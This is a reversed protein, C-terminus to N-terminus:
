SQENHVETWYGTHRTDYRTARWVKFTTACYATVRTGHSNLGFVIRKNSEYTSVVSYQENLEMFKALAQVATFKGM